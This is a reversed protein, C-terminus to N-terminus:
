KLPVFSHLLPVEEQGFKRYNSYWFSYHCFDNIVTNIQVFDM